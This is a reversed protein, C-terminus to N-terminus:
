YCFKKSFTRSRKNIGKAKDAVGFCARLSRLYENINAFPMEFASNVAVAELSLYAFNVAQVFFYQEIMLM